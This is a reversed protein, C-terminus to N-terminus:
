ARVESSEADSIANQRVESHEIRRASAQSEPHAENAAPRMRSTPTM